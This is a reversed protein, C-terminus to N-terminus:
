HQQWSAAHWFGCALQKEFSEISAHPKEEPPTNTVEEEEHEQRVCTAFHLSIADAAKRQIEEKLRLVESHKQLVCASFEANFRKTLVAQWVPRSEAVTLANQRSTAAFSGIAETSGGDGCSALLIHEILVPPLSSLM